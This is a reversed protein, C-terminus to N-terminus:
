AAQFLKSNFSDKGHFEDWDKYKRVSQRDRGSAWNPSLTLMAQRVNEPTIRDFLGYGTGTTKNPMHVSSVMERNDSWQVYCINTGDTVYCYTPNSSRVYVAWGQAKMMEIYATTTAEM